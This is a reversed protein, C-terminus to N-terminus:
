LGFERGVALDEVGKNDGGEAFNTDAGWRGSPWSTRAELDVQDLVRFIEVGDKSLGVLKSEM